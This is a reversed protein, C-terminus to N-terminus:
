NTVRNKPHYLITKIKLTFNNSKTSTVLLNILSYSRPDFSALPKIQALTYIEFNPARKSKTSAKVGCRKHKLCKNTVQTM